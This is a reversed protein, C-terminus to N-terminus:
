SPCGQNRLAAVRAPQEAAPMAQLARWEPKALDVAEPTYKYLSKLEGTFWAMVVTRAVYIDITDEYSECIPDPGLLLPLHKDTRRLFEDFDVVVVGPRQRVAKRPSWQEVDEEAATPANPLKALQALAERATVTFSELSQQHARSVCVRPEGQACVLATAETDTVMAESKASPLLPLAIAAGVILPVLAIVKAGRGLLLYGTVALALFWLGQLLSVRTSLTTFADHIGGLAPSLLSQRYTVLGSFITDDEAGIQLVVLAAMSIVAVVPATLLSPLVRGIGMGLLVAAVMSVVGVIAIPLWSLHQYGTNGAVQVAGVAFIVVYASTLVTTMAGVPPLVRHRAPRPTSTLLEDMASRHDRRGQWAGAGLALPWLMVLQWRQWWALTTWQLTWAGNGHVWQGPLFFFFGLAILIALLGTWLAVSRRLEIRLMRM